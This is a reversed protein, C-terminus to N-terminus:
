SRQEEQIIATWTEGALPAEEAEVTEKTVPIAPARWEIRGDDVSVVRFSGEMDYVKKLQDMEIEMRRVGERGSRHKALVIGATRDEFISSNSEFMM